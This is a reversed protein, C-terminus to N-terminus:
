SRPRAAADRLHHGGAGSHRGRALLRAAHSLAQGKMAARYGVGVLELTESTARPSARSWTPSWPARCAGCRGPARPTTARRSASATMTRRTVEIEDVVTWALEGKPGKVTVTQGDLTVTVGSPIPITKKGIRSM